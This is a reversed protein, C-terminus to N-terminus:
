IYSFYKHMTNISFVFYCLLMLLKIYDIVCTQSLKYLNLLFMHLKQSGDINPNPFLNLAAVFIIKM